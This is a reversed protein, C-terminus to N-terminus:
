PSSQQLALVKELRELNVRPVLILHDEVSSLSLCDASMVIALHYLILVEPDSQFKDYQDQFLPSPFMEM